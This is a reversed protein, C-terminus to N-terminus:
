ISNKILPCIPGSKTAGVIQEACAEVACVRFFVEFFADVTCRRGSPSPLSLLQAAASSRFGGRGGTAVWSELDGEEARGDGLLKKERRNEEKRRFVRAM